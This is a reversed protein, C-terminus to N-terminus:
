RRAAPVAVVNTYEIDRSEIDKMGDPLVEYFYYNPYELTEFFEFYDGTVSGFSEAAKKNLEFLVVPADVRDFIKKAGAFVLLEAGEVDCKVFNPLKIMGATYMEDLVKMECLVSHVNGASGKTWDSLSAMSADEPVYLEIGGSKDSLAIEFLQVNRPEELTRRLSPLLEPNPEFAFVKGSEGALKSLLLTYFGLHAGIDFVVDGPRVFQRMVEAEGSLYRPSTLIARASGIRLDAFLQGAETQIPVSHLSKFHRSLFDSFRWSGRLGSRCYIRIIDVLIRM